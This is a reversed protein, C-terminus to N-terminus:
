FPIECFNCLVTNKVTISFVSFFTFCSSEDFSVSVARRNTGGESRNVQRQGQRYQGNEVICDSGDGSM